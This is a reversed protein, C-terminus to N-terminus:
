YGLSLRYSSFAVVAVVAADAVFVEVYVALYDARCAPSDVVFFGAVFFGVSDVFVEEFFSIIISKKRHAEPRRPLRKGFFM